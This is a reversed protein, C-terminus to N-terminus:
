ESEPLPVFNLVRLVKQREEGSEDTIVDATPIEFETIQWDKKVAISGFRVYRVTGPFAMGWWERDIGLAECDAESLVYNGTEENTTLEGDVDFNVYGSVIHLVEDRIAEGMVSYADNQRIVTDGSKYYGCVLGAVDNSFTNIANIEDISPSNIFDGGRPGMTEQQAQPYYSIYDLQEYSLPVPTNM